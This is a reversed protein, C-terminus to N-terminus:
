LQNELVTLDEYYQFYLIKLAQIARPVITVDWRSRSLQSIRSERKLVYEYNIPSRQIDALERIVYDVYLESPDKGNMRHTRDRSICYELNNHLNRDRVRLVDMM